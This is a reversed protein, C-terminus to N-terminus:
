GQVKAGNGWNFRAEPNETIGASTTATSDIAM